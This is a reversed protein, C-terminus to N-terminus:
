VDLTENKSMCNNCNLGLVRIEQCIQCPIMIENNKNVAAYSKKGELGIFYWQDSTHVKSM